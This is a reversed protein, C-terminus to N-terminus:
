RTIGHQLTQGLHHDEIGQDTFLAYRRGRSPEADGLGVDALLQGLELGLETGLQHLAGSAAEGQGFEALLIGTVAAGQHRHRQLRVGHDRLATALYAADQM